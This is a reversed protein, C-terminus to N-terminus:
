YLVGLLPSPLARATLVFLGVALAVVVTTAFRARPVATMLRRVALLTAAPGAPLHDAKRRGALRHAAAVGLALPFVALLTWLHVAGSAWADVASASRTAVWSTIFWQAASVVVGVALSISVAAVRKVLGRRSAAWALGCLLAVCVPLLVGGAALPDLPGTVLVKAIRAADSSVARLLAEWPWQWALLLVGLSERLQSLARTGWGAAVIAATSVVLFGAGYVSAPGHEDSLRLLEAALATLCLCLIMDLQRDHIEPGRPIARLSHWGVLGALVPVVLLAGLAGQQPWHALVASWWPVQVAAIALPVVLLRLCTAAQIAGTSRARSRRLGSDSSATGPGGPISLVPIPVTPADDHTWPRPAARPTPIRAPARRAAHPPM